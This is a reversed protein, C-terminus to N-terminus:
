RRLYIYGTYAEDGNGPDLVYYYTSEPLKEGFAAGFQSTGDWTNTYPTAEFVKNGWRNFIVFNNDPYYEINSITYIDNTGDGNPSFANPIILTLCDKLKIVVTDTTTECAGNSLTWVFVNEGLSLGTVTTHPDGPNTITGNGSLRSWSGSATSTAPAANLLATTTQHQCLEDDDGADAHPVESDYVWISM